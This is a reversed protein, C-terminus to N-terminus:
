INETIRVWNAYALGEPRNVDFVITGDDNPTLGNFDAFVPPDLESDITIATTSGDDYQAIYETDRNGTSTQRSAGIDIDYTKLPDLDSIIIETTVASTSTKELASRWALLDIGQYDSARRGEYDGGDDFGVTEIDWTTSNNDIDM